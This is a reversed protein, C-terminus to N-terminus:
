NSRSTGPPRRKTFREIMSDVTQYGEILKEVQDFQYVIEGDPYFERAEVQLAKAEQRVDEVDSLNIFRSIFIEEVGSSLAVWIDGDLYRAKGLYEIETNHGDVFIALIERETDSIL